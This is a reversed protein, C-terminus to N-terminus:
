NSLRKANSTVRRAFPTMARDTAQMTHRLVRDAHKPDTWLQPWTSALTTALKSLQTASESLADLKEKVMRQSERNTRRDGPRTALMTLRLGIVQPSLMAITAGKQAVQFAGTSWTPIVTLDPMLPWSKIASAEPWFAFPDFSNRSTTM